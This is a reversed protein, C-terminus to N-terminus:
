KKKRPITYIPLNGGAPIPNAFGMPAETTFNFADAGLNTGAQLMKNAETMNGMRDRPNIEALKTNGATDYAQLGGIVESKIRAIEQEIAIRNPIDANQAMTNLENIKSTAASVTNNIFKQKNESQQKIFEAETDNLNKQQTTIDMNELEYQNGIDAMGSKGIEGYARAIRDVASSSGANKNGLTVGASKIGRGVMGLIGQSGRMKNLENKAGMTDITRQQNGLNTGFNRWAAGYDIGFNDINTKNSQNFSNWGTNFSTTAADKAKQIEVAERAAQEAAWTTYPDTQTTIPEITPAMQPATMPQMTPSLIHSMLSSGSSSPASKPKVQIPFNNVAGTVPFTIPM